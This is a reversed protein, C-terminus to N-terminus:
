VHDAGLALLVSEYEVAAIQLRFHVGDAGLATVDECLLVDVSGDELRAFFGSLVSQALDSPVQSALQTLRAIQAQLLQTDASVAIACTM